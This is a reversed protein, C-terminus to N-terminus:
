EKNITLKIELMYRSQGTASWEDRSMTVLEAASLFPHVNSAEALSHFVATSFSYAEKDSGGWCLLTMIPRDIFEGMEGGTQSVMVTAKKPPEPPIETCVIAGTLSENLINVVIQVADNSITMGEATELGEKHREEEM